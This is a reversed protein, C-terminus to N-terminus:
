FPISDLNVKEDEDMDEIVVDKTKPEPVATGDVLQSLPIGKVIDGVDLKDTAAKIELTVQSKNPSPIVSYKTSTGTGTRTIKLDYASPDGYEPDQALAQIQRFGTVPLQLIQASDENYNWISWAYKNSIKTESTLKDTFSSAFIYPESCLRLKVPEDSEFKLFFGGDSPAKYTDYVSM